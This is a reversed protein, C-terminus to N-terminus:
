ARESSCLEVVGIIFSKRMFVLAVKPFNILSIGSRRVKSINKFFHSGMFGLLSNCEIFSQNM